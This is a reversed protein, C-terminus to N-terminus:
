ASRRYLSEFSFLGASALRNLERRDVLLPIEIGDATRISRGRFTELRSADGTQLFKQLASWYQGLQSAARSGRIAVERVGDPSPVQMVRLLRDTKKPVWKGNPRKQLVSSAWRRVTKPSVHAELSAKTLSINGSRMKAIARLVRELTDKSKEPMAHYQATTRPAKQDSKPSRRQQKSKAEEKRHKTNM